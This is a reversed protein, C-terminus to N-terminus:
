GEFRHKGVEEWTFVQTQIINSFNHQPLQQIYEVMKYVVVQQPYVLQQLIEQLVGEQKQHQFCVEIVWEMIQHCQRVPNFSEVQLHFVLILSMLCRIIIAEVPHHLFQHFRQPVLGQLTIHPRATQLM